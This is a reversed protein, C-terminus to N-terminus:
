QKLAHFRVAAIGHDEALEICVDASTPSSELMWRTLREYYSIFRRVQSENMVRDANEREAALEQEQQWRWSYVAEMSPVQLFIHGDASFLPQYRDLQRNVFTRWRGDKDELKETDNVAQALRVAPEPQAGWCWGECIIVDAPGVQRAEAMRDDTAKDFQPIAVTNGQRLSNVARLLGDVDHTGPVGRTALLPHVTEALQNRAARTLYFDDLSLIVTNLSFHQELLQAMHRALTSKGSGQAGAVSIMKASSTKKGSDHTAVSAALSYVLRGYDASMGPVLASTEPAPADPAPADASTFETFRM